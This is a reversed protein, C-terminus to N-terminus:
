GAYSSDMLAHSLATELKQIQDQMTQITSKLEDIDNTSDIVTTSLLPNGDSDLIVDGNSDKMEATITGAALIESVEKDIASWTGDGKLYHTKDAISPDPVLGSKGQVSGDTGEFINYTTDTFVANSPVDSEITHTIEGIEGSSNFYVPKISSGANKLSDTTVYGTLDVRTDGLIEWKSNIYMYETYVDQGSAEGNPVLYITHDKINSTPLTSVVEINFQVVGSIANNIADYVQGSTPLNTDDKSISSAVTKASADGLTYGNYTKNTLAQSDSLNVVQKDNSYLHSDTGVYVKEQTYTQPNATQAEAGVVYLKKSSSTAGATNKTDTTEVEKWTGDGGLFKSQDGAAPAPVLGSQGASSSTAGAMNSYKTDTITITNTSDDGKTVTVTTTDGSTNASVSKVYTSKISNGDEDSKAKNAIGSFEGTKLNIYVGSNKLLTDNSQTSSSSTGVLYVKTAESTDTQVTKDDLNCIKVFGTGSWIYIGNDEGGISYVAYLTDAEGTAPLASDIVNGSVNHRVSGMDYYLGHKDSLAIVQGDVVNVTDLKASTTTIFKTAINM